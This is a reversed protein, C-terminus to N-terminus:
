RTPSLSFGVVSESGRLRGRVVRSYAATLRSIIQLCASTAWQDKVVLRAAGNYQDNGAACRVNPPAPIPSMRDLNVGKRGFAFPCLM